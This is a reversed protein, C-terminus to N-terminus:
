KFRITVGKLLTSCFCGEVVKGSKDKCTFGTSWTDNEDCCFWSHGTDEIDTYGQNELQTKNCSNLPPDGKQYSSVYCMGILFNNNKPTQDSSSTTQATAPFATNSAVILFILYKYLTKM